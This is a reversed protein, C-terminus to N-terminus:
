LGGGPGTDPAFGGAAERGFARNVEGAELPLEVVEPLRGPVHRAVVPYPHPRHDPPPEGEMRRGMANITLVPHAAYEPFFQWREAVHDHGRVLRRVPPIGLRTTLKCFDAFDNWGFEHGRNGRNPRKKPREAIRAWLFDSLCAPRALDAPSRLLEHTDTHPFGGHAYLTGDPLFIARPRSQWFPILLKALEIQEAAAPDASGLM